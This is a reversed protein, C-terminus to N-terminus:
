KKEKKNLEIMEDVRKQGYRKIMYPWYKILNGSKKINCGYCQPHINDEMFFCLGRRGPIFHGAQM